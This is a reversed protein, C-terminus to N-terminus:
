QEEIKKELLSVLEDGMKDLALPNDAWGRAIVAWYHPREEFDRTDVYSGQVRDVSGVTELFCDALLESMNTPYRRMHFHYIIDSGRIGFRSYLKKTQRESWEVHGQFGAAAGGGVALLPSSPGVPLAVKRGGSFATRLMDGEERTVGQAARGRAGLIETREAM